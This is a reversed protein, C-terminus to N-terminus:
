SITTIIVRWLPRMILRGAINPKMTFFIICLKVFVKGAGGIVNVSVIEM